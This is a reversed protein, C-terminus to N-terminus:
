RGYAKLEESTVLKTEKEGSGIRGHGAHEPQGHEPRLALETRLLEVPIRAQSDWSSIATFDM